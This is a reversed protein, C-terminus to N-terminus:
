DPLTRDRRAIRVVGHTVANDAPQVSCPRSPRPDARWPAGASGAKTNSYRSPPASSSIVRARLRDAKSSYANTGRARAPHPQRLSPRSRMKSRVLPCGTHHGRHPRETQEECPVAVGAESPGGHRRRNGEDLAGYGVRGDLVDGGDWVDAVPELEVHEARAAKMSRSTALACATPQSASTIVTPRMRDKAVSFPVPAVVAYGIGRCNGCCARCAAEDCTSASTRGRPRGSSLVQQTRGAPGAPRAAAAAQDRRSTSGSISQARTGRSRDRQGPFSTM